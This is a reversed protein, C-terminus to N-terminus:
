TVFNQEERVTDAIEVNDFKQCCRIRADGSGRFFGFHLSKYKIWVSSQWTNVACAVYKFDLVTCYTSGDAM